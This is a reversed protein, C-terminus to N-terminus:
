DLKDTFAGDGIPGYCASVGFVNFVLGLELPRKHLPAFYIHAENRGQMVGAARFGALAWRLVIVSSIIPHHIDVPNNVMSITSPYFPHAM